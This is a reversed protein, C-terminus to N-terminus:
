KKAPGVTGGPVYVTDFLTQRKDPRGMAMGDVWRAIRNIHKERPMVFHDLPPMNFNFVPDMIMTIVSVDRPVRLGRRALFSFAAACYNPEHVFLATPPTLRFLGDLCSEFGEATDDFHPLNYDTPAIGRTELISLYRDLSPIRTPQRLFTQILLVIRRHGHDVLTNVASEIASAVRTASGAIPLNTFRGGYAFVPFPQAAFWELVVHSGTCVIWADADAAKVCRSIRTLNDKMQTLSQDSFVCVHGATEIAHRVGLLITALLVDNEIVPVYLMIGIRLARRIPTANGQPVIRRRRGAGCDQLWGEEELVKLSARVIDKSVMLEGALQLVGPLRDTWRGNQFGERLHSATQDVLPLRRFPHAM